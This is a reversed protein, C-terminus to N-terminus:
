RQQWRRGGGENYNDKTTDEGRRGCKRRSIMAVTKQKATSPDDAEREGKSQGPQDDRRMKDSWRRRQREDKRRM